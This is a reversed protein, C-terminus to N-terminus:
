PEPIPNPSTRSPSPLPSFPTLFFNFKRRGAEYMQTIVSTKGVNLEAASFFGIQCTSRHNVGKALEDCRVSSEPVCSM